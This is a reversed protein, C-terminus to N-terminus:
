VGQQKASSPFSIYWSEFRLHLVMTRILGKTQPRERRQQWRPKSFSGLSSTQVGKFVVAPSYFFSSDLTIDAVPVESIAELPSIKKFFQSLLIRVICHDLQTLRSSCLKTFAKYDTKKTFSIVFVFFASSMQLFLTQSLYM